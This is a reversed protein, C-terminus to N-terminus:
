QRCWRGHSPDPQPDRDRRWGELTPPKMNFDTTRIASLPNAASSRLQTPLCTCTKLTTLHAVSLAGMPENMQHENSARKISTQHRQMVVCRRSTPWTTCTSPRLCSPSPTTSPRWAQAAACTSASPSRHHKTLLPDAARLSPEHESRPSKNAPRRHSHSTAPLRRM